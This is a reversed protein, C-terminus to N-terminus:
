KQKKTKELEQQLKEKQLELQLKLIEQRLKENEQRLKKNESEIEKAEQEVQKAKLAAAKAFMQQREIEEKVSQQTMIEQHELERDRASVAIAMDGQRQAINTKYTELGLVGVTQLLQVGENNSHPLRLTSFRITPVRYSVSSRAQVTSTFVVILIITLVIRKM